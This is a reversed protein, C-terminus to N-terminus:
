GEDEISSILRRYSEELGVEPHWGLKELKDIKLKLKTDEAYGYVNEKPIDFKVNIKGCAVKQCVMKAMDGITMHSKPNSINYAEGDKGKLLIVILAQIADRLYCYNGESKGQTHLVIDQMNIVSKAFQMFVRNEEPLVGPGFTQALRAIKVPVGYEHLYAICMNECLRKSEPYNSRLKLPDVYGLEQESVNNNLQEFKGYVEMSSLYVFSKVNKRAALELVNNTGEVATLLTEVPKNVMVRSSTITACHFIYDIKDKIEIKQTIDGLVITLDNRYLLDGFIVKAKEKNRVLALIRLKIGKIRNICLLARVLSVGILGTAGTVLIISNSMKEYDLGCGAIIELDELIVKNKSEFINENM